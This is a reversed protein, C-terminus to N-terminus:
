IAQLVNKNMSQQVKTHRLLLQVAARQLEFKAVLCDAPLQFASSIM